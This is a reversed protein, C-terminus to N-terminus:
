KNKHLLTIDGAKVFTRGNQFRGWAKYVYVDQECLKGKFYGDWGVNIDDTTFVRQGWRNYIEFHYEAADVVLPRFVANPNKQDTGGGPGFMGPMFANPYKIQGEARDAKITDGILTDVCGYHSWAILSVIYRGTDTYIHTPSFDTSTKHDGFNWLYSTAEQTNNYCKIVDEKIEVIKPQVLFSIAPIPYVKVLEYHSDTGGEANATLKVNYEGAKSFTHTPNTDTSNNTQDNFDWIYTEGWISKNKFDVKVPTCGSTLTDFIAIPQPAYLILTNLATDSCNGNTTILKVPIKYENEKKGWNIYTHDVSGKVTTDRGDGFQWLYNWPGKNTLDKFSFTAGPFFQLAPNISFNATPAPYVIMNQSSDHSCGYESTAKLKILYTTDRLTNNIFTHLPDTLTSIYGDGFDWFYSKRGAGLSANKFQANFPSCVTDNINFIALLPPNVIVDQSITDVCKNNNSSVTLFLKYSIQEDKQPYTHSFTKEVSSSTVSDGFNWLYCNNCAGASTNTINVRFPACVQDTDLKFNAVLNPFVVVNHSVSDSCDDKSIVVLKVKYTKEATDTNEYTFLPNKLVSVQGNDFNWNYNKISGLTQDTFQVAFPACGITDSAFGPTIDPKVIIQIDKTSSCGHVTEVYLESPAKILQGKINYLHSILPNNNKTKPSGDGFTWYSNNANTSKNTFLVSDPSCLVSKSISFDATASPFLVVKNKFTDTCNFEASTAVLKINVTTDNVPVYPYDFSISPTSSNGTNSNDFFWQYLKGGSKSLYQVHAPSCASDPAVIFDFDPKPYITIDTIAEDFCGFVTSAITKVRSYKTFGTSDYFTNNMFTDTVLSKINDIYWKLTDEGKTTATFNIKLPPCGQKASADVQIDPKPHITLIVKSYKGECGNETQTVYFTDVGPSNIGTTFDNGTYSLIKLASDTFWHINSGTATLDPIIENECKTVNNSVPPLPRKFISINVISASSRCGNLSDTVYYPTVGAKSFPMITLNHSIFKTLGPNSYWTITSIGELVPYANISDLKEGECFEGDSGASPAPPAGGAKIQVTDGSVECGVGNQIGLYYTGKKLGKFVNNDQYNKIIRNNFISYQIKGTGLANITITGDNRGCYSENTLTSKIFRPINNITLTVKVSPSQCNNATQTTYYFYTGKAFKGTRYVSSDKVKVNLSEDIYWRINSGKATLDPVPSNYCVSTDRALPAVPMPYVTLSVTDKASECNDTTQTAYFFYKGASNPITPNLSVGSFLLVNNGKYWRINEGDAVLAPVPDVFCIEKNQTLPPEPTSFINLRQLSVPSECKNVTQTAVYTYNGTLKKGTNYSNGSALLTDKIMNKYWRINTGSVNLPKIITETCADVSSDNPALPVANISLTVTDTASKCNKDSVQAIYYNYVGITTEGTFYTKGTAKLSTDALSPTSYWKINFNGTASLAPINNGDCIFTDRGIPKPPIPNITITVKSAPSQCGGTSETVFYRKTGIITSPSITKGTDLSATLGVNSYWTLKGGASTSAFLKRPVPGDCYETDKGAAPAHPPGGAKIEVLPGYSSCGDFNKVVVQYNGKKLNQFLTKNKTFTIGSDVSYSLPKSDSASISISGDRKNCYTEDTKVPTDIVPVSLITISAYSRTSECGNFKQNAYYIYVNPLSDHNNFTSIKDKQLTDGTENFWNITAVPNANTAILIPNKTGKCYNLNSILLTAPKPKLTITVKKFDSKCGNVTQTVYYIYAGAHSTDSIGHDYSNGVSLSDFKDNYWEIENGSASLAPVFSGECVTIDSAKPLQPKNNIILQTYNGSGECGLVTQTTFYTYTGTATKNTNFYNGTDLFNKLPTYWKINSGTAHLKPVIDGFCNTVNDAVVPADPLHKITFTLTDEPSECSNVTQTIYYNYIGSDTVISTYSSVNNFVGGSKDANSYWSVNSGTVFLKPNKQKFCIATDLAMPKAPIPFRTITIKAPPSECTDGAVIITETIYYGVAGLTDNRPSVISDDNRYQKSLNATLYWNFIPPYAVQTNALMSDMPFGNCYSKNASVFPKNPTGGAVLEIPPDKITICGFKNKVFIPYTGIGLNKFTDTIVFHNTDTISYFLPTNLGDTNIIIKGDKSKCQSMNQTDVTFIVPLSNVKIVKSAIPATAVCGNADSLSNIKFNSSPSIPKVFKRFPLGFISDFPQPTLDKAYVMKWPAKGTLNFTLQTSDGNCVSDASSLTATPLPNRLIVAATGFDKALCSNNDTIKSLRFTGGLKTNFIKPSVAINNINVPSSGNVTYTINWPSSGTLEISIPANIGNCFTNSGTIDGTPLPNSIITAVDGFDTGTCGNDDTVEIAKYTGAHSTNFIYKSSDTSNIRVTDIGLTYKFGWPAKGTLSFTVPTTTVGDDCIQTTGSVSITPLPNVTIIASDGFDTAICGNGDKLSTIKYTGQLTTSSHEPNNTTNVNYFNFGDTFTYTYPLQGTFNFTIVANSGDDCIKATGTTSATPLSNVTIKITSSPSNCSGISDTVYYNRIGLINSPLLSVSDKVILSTLSANSYWKLHGGSVGTATMKSLPLGICYSADPSVMPAPPNTGPNITATGGTQVCGKSNKIIIKYIGNNLGNFLNSAQYTIGSDVSYFVALPTPDNASISITGDHTNCYKEDTTLINNVLPLGYIHLTDPIATSECGKFTQSAFYIYNGTQTKNTPFPIGVHALTVKGADEYWKINSGTATLDPIPSGFCGGTDTVVPPAPQAIIFLTDTSAPSECNAATQTIYYVYQGAATKGTPFSNGNFLAVSLTSDAYWKINTGFANLDPTTTGECASQNSSGPADPIANITLTASDAKSQCNNVTQTVYFKYSAVATDGTAYSSDSHVLTNLNRSNYWKINSGTTVLNPTPAGFCIGTDNAIPAVPIPHIIEFITDANSECGNITQTVFMKFTDAFTNVPIYTNTNTALPLNLISYWKVNSGTSTLVPKPAGFCIATDTAVPAPPIEYVTVTLAASPGECGGITETVYYNRTGVSDYPLFTGGTGILKTLLPDSYWKLTDTAFVGAATLKKNNKGQCYPDIGKAGPAPPPGGPLIVVNGGDATCGFVNEIKIHYTGGGLTDFESPVLFNLGNDISYQLNTGSASIKISGDKKNCYSEDTRINSSYVPNANITLKASNTESLCGNLKQTVFYSYSGLGSKGTPFSSGTFVPKINSYWTIVAGNKGSANLNPVAAGLCSSTDSTMPIEPTDYIHLTVIDFPSTCNNVTQTVWFSYDGVLTKLTTYSNGFKVPPASFLSDTYWKVSNGTSNLAPTANGFCSSTDNAVPAAPTANITLNIKTFPSKCGNVQQTVFYNYSGTATKGTTYTNGISALSTLASDNYWRISTGIATLDPITKGNCATQNTVGPASPLSNITLTDITPVSQCNNVTQTVWYNYSGPGLHPSFSNGIAVSNSLTANPYWKINTGTATLTSTEGNCYTQNLAVPQSPLSNIIITSTAPLSECTDKTETVYYNTTGVNNNPTFNGGSGIQHILNPDSYWTLTGNVNANATMQAIADGQCYTQNNNVTPPKPAGGNIITIVGISVECNYGNKVKIPYSGQGLGTFISTSAYSIGGNISYSLPATGTATISLSADNSNCVSQPTSAANTIVPSPNITLTATKSPGECSNTTQTVYYTYSGATTKGTAYNLGLFVLNSLVADSYWKLNSGTATLNPIAQVTCVTLDNTTPASPPANITLSSTNSNSQCGNRTQTTYYTYTGALSKGTNFVSDGYVLNSLQFDSYWKINSGSATLPPTIQGICATKNSLVPPLPVQYITLTVTTSPSACGSVNQTAYYTYTGVATKGTNFPSGSFVLSSLGADSYWKINTGTADLNPITSQFCASKNSAVPAAPINNVTLTLNDASASCGSILDTVLLTYQTTVPPNAVPNAIQTSSLNIGPTWTYRFSGSGGVAVPHGGLTDSGGSCFTVSNGAEAIPVTYAHVPIFVTDGKCGSHTEVVYLKSNYENNGFDFIAINNFITSDPANTSSLFGWKYTSLPTNTVKYVQTLNTCFNSKGTIASTVPLAKVKLNMSDIAPTSCSNNGAATLKLTVIKGNDGAGPIYTPFLVTDSANKWTGSGNHTWKLSKYESATPKAVSTSLDFPVKSCTSEDTGANASPKPTYHLVMFDFITACSEKGTAKLTLNIDDTEGQASLPTYTPHLANTFSLNGTGTTSWILATYNGATDNKLTVPNGECTERDGGANVTPATTVTLNMQSAINSCSGKGYATLTLQASGSNNFNYTAFLTKPNVFSGGANSSTWKLSDYNAATAGLSADITYSGLNSCVEGDGGASVTPKPTIDLVASNSTLPCNGPATVICRYITNDFSSLDPNKISLKTSTVGSFPSANSLTNFSSGNKKQWKYTMGIPGTALISISTDNGECVEANLPQGSSAISPNKNVTLTVVSSLTDCSGTTTLRCRYSYTNMSFPVTNLILTATNTGSYVSSSDSRDTWAGSRNEQWKYTLGSSSSANVNFSTNGSECVSKSTPQANIVALPNVSLKVANSTNSCSGFTSVICHYMSNNMSTTTGSISYTPSTAGSLSIWSGSLSDEWQYALSTGTASISFVAPKGECATVNSPGTIVALANVTVAINGNSTCTNNDTVTYNLYYTGPATTNQVVPNQITKSSLIGTTDIWVHSAYSTGSGQAPTGDLSLSTGQCITASAGPSINVSPPKNFKITVNSTKTCPGNTETWSLVYQGYKNSTITDTPSNINSHTLSGGAPASVVAWIKSSGSHDDNSNGSYSYTNANLNTKLGCISITSGAAATSPSEYFRITVNKVVGCKNSSDTLAFKYTNFNPLFTITSTPINKNGFTAIGPGSIQSWVVSGVNKSGKLTFNKGCINTDNGASVVPLPDITLTMANSATQSSCAGTGKVKLTLQISGATIDAPSVTYIPTLTSDGTFGTTIGSKAWFWTTHNTNTESGNLTVTNQTQCIEQNTGASATPLPDFRISVSDKKIPCAGSQVTWYYHYTGTATVTTTSNALHPSSFSATGPGSATWTGTGTTIVNGKLTYAPFCSSDPSGPIPPTASNGFSLTVDDKSDPCIGNSITWRLVYDGWHSGDMTFTSTPSAPTSITATAPSSVLSWVGTNTGAPTNGHLVYSVTPFCFASDLGANATTPAQLVTITVTGPNVIGACTPASARQISVLHYTKTSTPSLLLTDGSSFNNKNYTSTGDSIIANYPGSLVGSGTGTVTITIPTSNGSCITATGSISVQPLDYVTVPVATGDVTGDCLPLTTSKISTLTFSKNATLNNPHTFTFPSSNIGPQTFNSSGDSYTLDFPFVGNTITVTLSPKTNKCISATTTSLVASARSVVNISATTSSTVCFNNSSVPTISNTYELRTQIAGTGTGSNIQMQDNAANTQDSTTSSGGNYFTWGNASAPTTFQWRFRTAGGFTQAAPSVIGTTYTLNSTSACVSSTPAIAGPASLTNRKTLVCNNLLLTVNPATTTCGNTANDKIKTISYTTNSGSAPNTTGINYGGGTLPVATQIFSSGGDSYTIDFTGTGIGSVNSFRVRLTGSSCYSATSAALNSSDANIKAGPLPNITVAYTKTVSCRTGDSVTTTYQLTDILTKAGTSATSTITYTKTNATSATVTWDVPANWVYQTAGGTAMTPPTTPTATYVNLTSGQCATTPGATIGTFSLVNRITLTVATAPGECSTSGLTETVWYNYIGAATAAQTFSAAAGVQTTLGVNSYWKFTGGTGGGSAATLTRTGGFCIVKSAAVPAVPSQIVQIIATTTVPANDGNVGPAPLVGDDYQNCFNWNRLTVEFVYGAKGVTKTGDIIVGLSTKGSSNALLPISVPTINLLPTAVGANNTVPTAGVFVGPIKLTAAYTANNTTGYQFQIWRTQQNANDPSATLNCNFTSNDVFTLTKTVGECIQYLVVSTSQEQCLLVGSGANDKDWIYVPQTQLSSACRINNVRLYVTPNYKCVTSVAPYKHMKGAFTTGYEYRKSAATYIIPGAVSYPIIETVGDGWTFEFSVKTPIGGDDVKSYVVYWYVKTPSCLSDNVMNNGIGINGGGFANCSQADIKLHLGTLILVLLIYILKNNLFRMMYLDYKPM